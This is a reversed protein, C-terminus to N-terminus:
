GYSSTFLVWVICSVIFSDYIRCLSVVCGQPKSPLVSSLSDRIVIFVSFSMIIQTPIINRCFGIYM